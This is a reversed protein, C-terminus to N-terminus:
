PLQLLFLGYSLLLLFYIRSSLPYMDTAFFHNIHVYFNIAKKGKVKTDKGFTEGSALRTLLAYGIQGAAGTVLVNIEKM